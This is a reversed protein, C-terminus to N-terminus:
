PSKGLAYAKKGALTLEVLVKTGVPLDGSIQTLEGDSIGTTIPVSSLQDGSLLWVENGSPRRTAAPPTFHLAANPVRLVEKAEATRVRVSATMGPKLALDPNDVQVIAGYTVVDQIRQPANRVETVVGEFRREPYANVTFSAVQGVKVEGIDAEDIATLVQMKKLDAAVTFLVPAQLMAAVTQGPEINRSIVVGYIPSRIVAHDLNTRALRNSAEQAALQAAAAQRRAEALGAAAVANEYEQDAIAARQHLGQAREKNRQTQAVDVKAQMLQARATAVFADSQARQAELSALDFRAMVQGASVVSNYDVDVTSIRGSIEAGVSVESVAELQGTARVERVVDGRTVPQM